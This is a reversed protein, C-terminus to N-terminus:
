IEVVLLEKGISHLAKTIRDTQEPRPKSEGAAYRQLQRQNIGTLRELASNTFIGRYHQLLSKADFKYILEYDDHFPEPIKDGYEISTELHMEVANKLNMQLEEFTGGTAVCGPLLELYAAYNIKSMEVTVLIKEM